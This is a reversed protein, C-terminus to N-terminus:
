IPGEEIVYQLARTLPERFAWVWFYQTGAGETYRVEFGCRGAMERLEGETFSVGNWTDGHGRGGGGEVQFKFLGGAALVRHAERLYGEVIAKEPVHQFVIFSFAFHYAGGPLVSLDEGNNVYLHVNREGALGARALEIMEPSVDVAHVEGFIEALARTLRGAGCGIEVVRMQKPDMGRCINELDTLVHQRVNEAGSAFFAEDTWAQNGTAIFYRGETRARADWDARMKESVSQAASHMVAERTADALEQRLARERELSENLERQLRASHAAFAERDLVIQRLRPICLLLRDLRTM